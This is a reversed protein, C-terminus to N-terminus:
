YLLIFMLLNKLYVIKGKITSPLTTILKLLPYCLILLPDFPISNLFYKLRLLLYLVLININIQEFPIKYFNLILLM